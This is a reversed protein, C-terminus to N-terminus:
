CQQLTGATEECSLRSRASVLGLTGLALLMTCSIPQSTLPLECKLFFSKRPNHSLRAGNDSKQAHLVLHALRSPHRPCHFRHAEPMVTVTELNRRAAIVM